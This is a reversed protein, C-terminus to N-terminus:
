FAAGICLSAKKYLKYATVNPSKIGRNKQGRYGLGITKPNDYLYNYINVVIEQLKKFAACFDLATLGHLYEELVNFKEPIECMYTNYSQLAISLQEITKTELTNSM